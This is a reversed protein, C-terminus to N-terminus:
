EGVRDMVLKMIIRFNIKICLQKRQEEEDLSSCFFEEALESRVARNHETLAEIFVRDSFRNLVEPVPNDMAIM